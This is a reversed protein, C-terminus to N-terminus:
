VFWSNLIFIVLFTKGLPCLDPQLEAAGNEKSSVWRSAAANLINSCGRYGYHMGDAEYSVFSNLVVEKKIDYNYLVQLIPLAAVSRLRDYTTRYGYHPLSANRNAGPVATSNEWWATTSPKDAVLPYSTSNKDGNPWTDQSSSFFVPVQMYRSDTEYERCQWVDPSVSQLVRRSSSSLVMSDDNWECDCVYHDIAYECEVLEPSYKCAETGTHVEPYADNMKIGDFLLWSSYRTLIHLDRISQESRKSVLGARLKSFTLLARDQLDLFGREADKVMHPLRQSVSTIVFVSITLTSLLLPLVILVTIWQFLPSSCGKSGSDKLLESTHVSDRHSSNGEANVNSGFHVRALADDDDKTQPEEINYKFDKEQRSLYLSKFEEFMQFQNDLELIDIEASKAIAGGSFKQVMKQFQLVIESLETKMFGRTRPDDVEIKKENGGFNDIISRAIDNMRTLPLTITYSVLFLVAIMIGFAICGVVISLLIVRDAEESVKKEVKEVQELMDRQSLSVIALFAPQYNKDYNKPPPPMPYAKVRYGDSWVTYNEYIERVTVPDWVNSYNVLQQLSKYAAPSVGVDIETIRVTVLASSMNWATSAVVTGTEDFQIVTIQTHNTIRSEMLIDVVSDVLFDVGICSVFENTIRDYVARGVTMLWSNKKWADLYPGVTMTKEPQLALDRCWGRDTPTYLRTSVEAGYIHRNDARCRVIAENSLIQRSQNYPNPAKAWDCGISTYRTNTDFPTGPYAMSAGAGSNSFYIGIYKVDQHFEYLAKLLPALDSAKRHIQETTRSPAYIGGTTLNNNADSCGPIYAYNTEDTVTPDCAGQIAFFANATSVKPYEKYWPWRGQVHEEYNDGNVNGVIQWDLPLSEGVIPYRNTQSLIDLFPVRSDDEAQPYGAFRDRTAEYIIQVVDNLILKPTLDEAIYRAMRGDLSYALAEYNERTKGKVLDSSTLTIAVCVILVLFITFASIIGFSLMMQTRLNFNSNLCTTQLLGSRGEEERVYREEDLSLHDDYSPDVKPQLLINVPLKRMELSSGRRSARRTANTACVNTGSLAQSELNNSCAHSEPDFDTSGPVRLSQEVHVLGPSTNSASATTTGGKEIDAELHSSSAVGSKRSNNSSIASAGQEGDDDLSTIDTGATPNAADQRHRQLDNRFEGDERYDDDRMKVNFVKTETSQNCSFPDKQVTHVQSSM